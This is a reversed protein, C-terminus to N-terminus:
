DDKLVEEIADFFDDESGEESSNMEIWENLFCSLVGAWTYSGETKERIITNIIVTYTEVLESTTKPKSM